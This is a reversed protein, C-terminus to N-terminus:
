KSVEGPYPFRCNPWSSCTNGSEVLFGMGTVALLKRAHWESDVARVMVIPRSRADEDTPIRDVPVRCLHIKYQERPEAAIWKAGTWIERDLRTADKLTAVRYGEGIEPEAKAPQEQKGNASEYAEIEDPTCPRCDEFFDREDNPM